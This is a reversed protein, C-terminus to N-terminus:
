EQTHCRSNIGSKRENGSSLSKFTVNKDMNIRDSVGTYSEYVVLRM